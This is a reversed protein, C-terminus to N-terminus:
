WRVTLPLTGVEVSRGSSGGDLQITMAHAQSEELVLMPAAAAIADWWASIGPSQIVVRTVRQTHVPAHVVPPLTAFFLMPARSDPGDLAIPITSGEPLFPAHYSRTPVPPLWDARLCIGFPSIGTERWRARDGLRTPAVKLSRLAADDTAFLFELYADAFHYCINATGQGPHERRAAPLFGYSNLAAAEPAGPESFVFVHDIRWSARLRNVASPIM